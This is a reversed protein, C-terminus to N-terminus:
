AGAYKKNFKRNPDFRLKWAEISYRESEKEIWKNWDKRSCCGHVIRLNNQNKSSFCKHFKFYLLVKETFISMEARTPKQRYEEFYNYFKFMYLYCKRHDFREGDMLIIGSLECVVVFLSGYYLVVFEYNRTLADLIQDLLSYIDYDSVADYKGNNHLSCCNKLCGLIQCLIYQDPDPISVYEDIEVSSHADFIRSLYRRDKQYILQWLNLCKTHYCGANAYCHMLANFLYRYTNYQSDFVDDCLAHADIFTKEAFVLYKICIAHNHKIEGDKEKQTKIIQAIAILIQVFTQNNLRMVNCTLMIQYLEFVKEMKNQRRYLSLMHNWLVSNEIQATKDKDDENFLEDRMTESVSKNLYENWVNEALVFENSAVLIKILLGYCSISPKLDYINQMESHLKNALRVAKRNISLKQKWIFEDYILRYMTVYIIHAVIPPEAQKCEAFLQWGYEFQRLDACRAILTNYIALVQDHNFQLNGDFHRQKWQKLTHINRFKQIINHPYATSQKGSRMAHVSNFIDDDDDNVKTIFTCFNKHIYTHKFRFNHHRTMMMMMRYSYRAFRM